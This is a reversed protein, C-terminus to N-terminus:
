LDIRRAQLLRQLEKWDKKNYGTTGVDRSWLKHFLGKISQDHVEDVVKKLDHPCDVFHEHESYVVNCMECIRLGLM